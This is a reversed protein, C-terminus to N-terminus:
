KIKFKLLSVYIMLIDLISKPVQYFNISIHHHTQIRELNGSSFAKESVSLLSHFWRDCRRPSRERGLHRKQIKGECEWGSWHSGTGRQLTEAQDQFLESM